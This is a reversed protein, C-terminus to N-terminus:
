GNRKNDRWFKGAFSEEMNCSDAPCWLGCVATELEVAAEDARSRLDSPMGCDIIMIDADQMRNRKLVKVASLNNEFRQKDADGSIIITIGKGRGHPKEGFCAFLCRVACMFGFCAFIAIVTDVIIEM